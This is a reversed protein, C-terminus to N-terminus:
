KADNEDFLFCWPSHLSKISLEYSCLFFAAEVLDATLRHHPLGLREAMRRRVGEMEEGHKFREVERLATRNKEVGEVYGRCREFFRMLEDDVQHSYEVEQLGWHQQLGEQFAEMSSVCRHKSSSVFSIRRTRLNEESLLSPFVAALRRALHRLDERGKMVLQGSCLLYM